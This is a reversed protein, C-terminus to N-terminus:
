LEDDPDPLPGERLLPIKHTPCLRPTRSTQLTELPGVPKWARCKECYMGPILTAEGTEPHIEPSYRAPLLFAAGTKRDVYVIKQLLKDPVSGSGGFLVPYVLWGTVLVVVLTCPIRFNAM